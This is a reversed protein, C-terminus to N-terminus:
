EFKAIANATLQKRLTNAAEMYALITLTVCCLELWRALNADRAIQQYIPLASVAQNIVKYVEKKECKSVLNNSFIQGAAVLSFINSSHAVKNRLVRIRELFDVIDNQVFHKKLPAIKQDFNFKPKEPLFEEQIFDELVSACVIIAGRDSENLAVLIRDIQTQTITM